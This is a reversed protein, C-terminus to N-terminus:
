GNILDPWEEEMVNSDLYEVERLNKASNKLEKLSNRRNSSKEGSWAASIGYTHAASALRLLAAIYPSLSQGCTYCVPRSDQVTFLGPTGPINACSGNCEACQLGLESEDVLKILLPKSM